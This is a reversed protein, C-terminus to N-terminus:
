KEKDFLKVKLALYVLIFGLVVLVIFYSKDYKMGYYEFLNWHWEGTFVHIKQVRFYYFVAGLILIFFLGKIFDWIEELLRKFLEQFNIM